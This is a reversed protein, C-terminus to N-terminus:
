KCIDNDYSQKQLIVYPLSGYLVLILPKTLKILIIQMPEFM